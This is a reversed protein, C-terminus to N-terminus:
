LVKRHVPVGAAIRSRLFDIMVRVKNPLYSRSPYVFWAATDFTTATVAYRPFVNVLRGAAIGPDVLWCPLLAPGLGAITADLLSGSPALLLDGDVPVEEERGRKDRFIWRTRFPRLNFLICRHRSIDTPTSLRPSSKLYRPSAVVRYQIDMLKSAVVDGEISPALRIALDIRDGVLDLNQDTFLGEVRLEPYRARFEGLLPVIRMQGFTASATVRLTGRPRGVTSTAFERARGLEEVLPEIQGLYVHGAETLRLQRTTRQFLRVGLEAEIEAIARSISSPAMDRDKAVAALSGRRTVELFVNLNDLKMRASHARNDHLDFRKNWEQINIVQQHISITLWAVEPV